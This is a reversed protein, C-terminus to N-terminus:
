FKKSAPNSLKNIILFNPLHDTIGCVINGSVAYHELLNFFINDILTASHYAIRTPKLIQPYFAYSGLTNVFHELNINFDGMLLCIKGENNVKETAKYLFDAAKTINQNPHTYILGCVINHHHPVEIKIWISEFEPNSTCFDDRKNYSLNDKIYFGVDGANSMSPQSLFYYGPLNTNFFSDIGVKFKTESLGFVPFSYKLDCLMHFFDDFNASLSRINFHLTSFTRDSIASRIDENFHFEHTSYYGFNTLSPLNLDIDISSLNPNNNIFSSLDFCPLSELNLRSIKDSCLCDTNSNYVLLEVLEHDEVSNFPFIKNRCHIPLAM